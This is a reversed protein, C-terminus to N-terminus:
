HHSYEIRPGRLTPISQEALQAVVRVRNFNTKNCNRTYLTLRHIIKLWVGILLWLTNMNNTVSRPKTPGSFTQLIPGQVFQETRNGLFKTALQHSTEAVRAAATRSVAARRAQIRVRQEQARAELSQHGGWYSSDTLLTSPSHIFKSHILQSVPGRMLKFSPIPWLVSVMPPLIGLQVATRWNSQNPNSRVLLVTTWEVNDFCRFGFM